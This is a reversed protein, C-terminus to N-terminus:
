TNFINDPINRSITGTFESGFAITAGKSEENYIGGGHESATNRTVSSSGNLTLHGPKTVQELEHNPYASGNYIGGGNKAATNGSVSTSGNLAAEGDATCIGGFCFWAFFGSRWLFGARGVL